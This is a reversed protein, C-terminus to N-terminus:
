MEQTILTLKATHGSLTEWGSMQTTKGFKIKFEGVKIKEGDRSSFFEVIKLDQVWEARDAMGGKVKIFGDANFSVSLKWCDGYTNCESGEWYTDAVSFNKNNKSKDFDHADESSAILVEKTIRNEKLLGSVIITESPKLEFVGGVSKDKFNFGISHSGVFINEIKKDATGIRKGDLYIIAHLPVSKIIVTGVQKVMSIKNISIIDEIKMKPFIFSIRIKVVQDDVVRVDTYFPEFGKTVAKVNYVGTKLGNFYIGELGEIAGSYEENLWINVVPNRDTIESKVVVHIGGLAQALCPIGLLAIILIIGIKNKKRM